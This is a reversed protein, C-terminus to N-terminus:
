IHTWNLLQFSRKPYILLSNQKKSPIVKEDEEVADAMQKDTADPLNKTSPIKVGMNEMMKKEEPSMADMAKQIEKMTADMVNQTSPKESSNQKPKTQGFAVGM